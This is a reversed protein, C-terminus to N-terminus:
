SQKNYSKTPVYFPLFISSITVLQQEPAETWGPAFYEDIHHCTQLQWSQWGRVNMSHKPSYVSSKISSHLLEVALASPNNGYAM